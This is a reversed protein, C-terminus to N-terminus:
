INNYKYCHSNLGKILANVHSENKISLKSRRIPGQNMWTVRSIVFLSNAM